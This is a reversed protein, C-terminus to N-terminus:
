IGGHSTCRPLTVGRGAHCRTAQASSTCPVIWNRRSLHRQCNAGKLVVLFKGAAPQTTNLCAPKTRAETTAPGLQYHASTPVATGRRATRVATWVGSPVHKMEQSVDRPKNAVHKLPPRCSGVKKRTTYVAQLRAILQVGLVQRPCAYVVSNHAHTIINILPTFSCFWQEGKVDVGGGEGGGWCAQLVTPFRPKKPPLWFLRSIAIWFPPAARATLLHHCTM